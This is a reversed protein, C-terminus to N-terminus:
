RHWMIYILTELAPPWQIFLSAIPIAIAILAVVLAAMAVRKTTKASGANQEALTAATWALNKANLAMVNAAEARKDADEARRNADEALRGADLVAERASPVLEDPARAVPDQSKSDAAIGEPEKADRQTQANGHAEKREREEGNKQCLWEKALANYNAPWLGSSILERVTQAGLQEMNALVHDSKENLVQGM